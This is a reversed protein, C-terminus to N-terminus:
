AGFLKDSPTAIMLLIIGLLSSIQGCFGVVGLNSWYVGLLLLFPDPQPVLFAQDPRDKLHQDMKQQFLRNKTRQVMIQTIVYVDIEPGSCIRASLAFPPNLNAVTLCFRLVPDSLQLTQRAEDISNVTNGLRFLKRGSSMNSVLSQLKVVLEKIASNNCLLYNSLACAYQPRFPRNEPFVLLIEIKEIYSNPYFYCKSYLAKDWGHM